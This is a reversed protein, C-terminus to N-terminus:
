AEVINLKHTICEAISMSSLENECVVKNEHKTAVVVYIRHCALTVIRPLFGCLVKEHINSCLDKLRLYFINLMAKVNFNLKTAVVVYLMRKNCLLM